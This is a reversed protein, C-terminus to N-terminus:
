CHHVCRPVGCKKQLRSMQSVVQGNQGEVVGFKLRVIEIRNIM